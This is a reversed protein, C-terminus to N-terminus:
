KNLIQVLLYRFVAKAGMSGVAGIAVLGLFYRSSIVNKFISVMQKVPTSSSARLQMWLSLTARVIM